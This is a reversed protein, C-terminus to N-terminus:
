KLLELAEQISIYENNFLAVVFPDSIGYKKIIENKFAEAAKYSDFSGVVYRTLGSATKEGTVDPLQAFIALKDDPPQNKFVGIQIKFKVLNKSVGSVPRNDPTETIDEKKVPTAGAEKLSIRKGDKYATIFAGPYGNIVMETKHEAAAEFSKFAGSMYKYLGDDTKIEILNNVGRFMKKSLPKQYAGLQVRLVVGEANLSNNTSNDPTVTKTTSAKAKATPTKTSQTKEESAIVTTNDAATQPQTVAVKFMAELKEQKTMPRNTKSGVPPEVFPKPIVAVPETKTVVPQQVPAPTVPKEVAPVVETKAVVPQQVPAPTDLKKQLEDVKKQLTEIEKQMAIETNSVAPQQVAPPTVPPVVAPAPETKAVAPQQVITPNTITTEVKKQLAELKEQLAAIEKQMAIETKSVVPQQVPPQTIPKEIVPVTETKTVVPQKVPAPTIVKEVVPTAETKAVIPETKTTNTTPTSYDPVDYFKGNQKYVVKLNTLGDALLQQKRFNVDLLNKFNGAMYTTTSDPFNNSAIDHVNLFQTMVDAPLGKKFTGLQVSYIKQSPDITYRTGKHVRIVIEAYKMSEDLYRDWRDAIASDSLQVGKTDVWAKPPSNLENDKYNAYCDNDDDLPCGKSDVVVAPPTCQCSDLPDAVGDKDYDYLDLALFDVNKYHEENDIAKEKKLTGFNYHISCSTMMFNDYKNNGQRNGKSTFTVGDIYDTFTFHMTTGFKFDFFDNLKFVAGFGLPIAFSREAYKGFNDVNMERIDSEYTYDRKIEIAAAANAANEDINRITGDTWYFYTNGNADKADMKSLFEFSEVGVSIYPSASRSKPLYHGFNYQINLGGARIQSEFNLNRNNPALRENAGLKGYLVNFNLQFHDSIKQSVSLDYAIRSVMPSQLHKSYLDGFFSFMGVGFGITPSIIISDRPIITQIAASDTTTISSKSSGTTDSVQALALNGLLLLFLVGKTTNKM